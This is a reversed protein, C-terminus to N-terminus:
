ILVLHEPRAERVAGLASGRDFSVLRGGRSAALALLYHDTLNRPGLIREVDFHAPDLLSLQDPWFEHHVTATAARLREIAQRVPSPNPYGPQAVVRVYGNQTLPCSAWGHEINADLWQWALRHHQHAADLLAILVNVDLLARMDAQM